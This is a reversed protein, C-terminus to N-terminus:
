VLLLGIVVLLLLAAGGFLGLLLLDQDFKPASADHTLEPEAADLSDLKPMSKSWNGAEDLELMTKSASGDEEGEAVHLWGGGLRAPRTGSAVLRGGVARIHQASLQSGATSSIIGCAGPVKLVVCADAFRRSCTSQHVQM